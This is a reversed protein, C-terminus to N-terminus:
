RHSKALVCTECNFTSTSILSPFLVKLYGPSSHGFRRHWLMTERESTGQTLLVRGPQALDDVYYLGHSETGREIIAGTRTGLFPLHSKKKHSSGIHKASRLVEEIIKWAARSRERSCHVEQRGEKLNRSTGSNVDKM